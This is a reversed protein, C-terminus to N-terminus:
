YTFKPSFFHMNQSNKQGAPYLDKSEQVSEPRRCRQPLVTTELERKLSKGQASIVDDRSNKEEKKCKRILGKVWGMRQGM